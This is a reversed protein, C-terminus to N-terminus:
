PFKSPDDNYFLIDTDMQVDPSEGAVLNSTAFNYAAQKAPGDDTRDAFDDLGLAVAGALAGADAANQAQRRSVWMLGYDAVFSLFAILAILIVAVQILMAGRESRFRAPSCNNLAM